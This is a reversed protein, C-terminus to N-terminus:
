DIKITDCGGNKGSVIMMDVSILLTIKKGILLVHHGNNALLTFFVDWEVSKVNIEDAVPAIDGVWRFFIGNDCMSMLIGNDCMSMLCHTSWMQRAVALVSKSGNDNEM